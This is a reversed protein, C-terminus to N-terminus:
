LRVINFDDYWVTGSIPCVDGCFVRATRITIGDCAPPAVFEVTIKQWENSGLPFRQTRTIVIDSNADVIEILPEGATRLNETRLMFSLSYRGSPVVAVLQTVNYLDPKAYAKFNLKLSKSGGIKVATDTIVDLKADSRSIRWGFLANESDGLFKEFGGNTITEPAADADAGSQKSFELAQRYFRKSYVNQTIIALNDVNKAKVEPPLSNWIRLSDAAAGRRAYFLALSVKVDPTNAAIQEVKSPDKEFFDWALSFVQERYVLSKETTKTLEAFAEDTRDQRLYFNGIQWHPFTYAPALDVARRLAREADEPREAQEYARGLEIWWRYDYPSLRVVEELETVSGEINLPDFNERLKSAVLWRPRPDRPALNVAAQAIDMANAQTPQTLEGLMSGVQWRVAFWTFVLAALIVGILSLRGKTNRANIITLPVSM